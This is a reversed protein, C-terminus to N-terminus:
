LSGFMKLAAWGWLLKRRTLRLQKIFVGKMVYAPVSIWKSYVSLLRGVPVPELRYGFLQLADGALFQFLALDFVNMEKQFANLPRGTSDALSTTPTSVSTKKYNYENSIERVSQETFPLGVHEFIKSLWVETESFLDEYRVELVDDSFDKSLAAVETVQRKWRRAGHFLDGIGFPPGYKKQLKMESLVENRGDRVIHVFKASPIYKKIKAIESTLDTAKEVYVRADAPIIEYFKHIMGKILDDFADQDLKSPLGRTFGKDDFQEKEQDYLAQLPFLYRQLFTNSGNLSFVDEHADIMKHLWTTGSRPAGIVFVFQKSSVEM